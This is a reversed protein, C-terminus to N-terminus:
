GNEVAKFNRRNRDKIKDGRRLVRGLTSKARDVFLTLNITDDNLEGVPFEVGYVRGTEAGRSVFATSKKNMASTIKKEDQSLYRFEIVFRDRVTDQYGRVWGPVDYPSFYVNVTVGGIQDTQPESNLLDQDVRVWSSM